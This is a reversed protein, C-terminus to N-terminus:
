PPELMEVPRARDIRPGSASSTINSVLIARPCREVLLASVHALLPAPDRLPFDRTAPAINTSM